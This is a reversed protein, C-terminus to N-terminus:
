CVVGLEGRSEKLCFTDKEERGRVLDSPVRLAPVLSFHTSSLPRSPPFPALCRQCLGQGAVHHGSGTRGGRGM